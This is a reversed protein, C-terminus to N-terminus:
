PQFKEMQKAVDQVFDKPSLPLNNRQTAGDMVYFTHCHTDEGRRLVIGGAVGFTEVGRARLEALLANAHKEVIQEREKTQM